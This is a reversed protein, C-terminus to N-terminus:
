SAGLLFHLGYGHMRFRRVFRVVDLDQTFSKSGIDIAKEYEKMGPVANKCCFLCKYIILECGIFRPVGLAIDGNPRKIIKNSKKGAAELMEDVLNNMDKDGTSIHYLRNIMLANLRMASLRFLFWGVTLQLLESLGGIDGLYDLIGYTQRETSLIDMNLLVEVGIYKYGNPFKNYSSPLLM